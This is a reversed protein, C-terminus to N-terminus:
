KAGRIISVKETPSDVLLNVIDSLYPKPIPEHIWATGYKYGCVACPKGLQGEPHEETNVWGATKTETSDVKYLPYKAVEETPIVMFYPLNLLKQEESTISAQGEKKVQELVRKEIDRQREGAKKYDLSLTTISLEKNALGTERQHICDPHMDNLHFKRWLLLIKYFLERNELQSEFHTWIDELCQGGMEIDSMSAKWVEGSASFTTKGDKVELEVDLRVLNERAKGTYAVKGFDFTKKYKM